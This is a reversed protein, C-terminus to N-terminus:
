QINKALRHARQEFNKALKSSKALNLHAKCQNIFGLFGKGEVQRSEKQAKILLSISRGLQRNISAPACNSVIRSQSPAHVRVIRM